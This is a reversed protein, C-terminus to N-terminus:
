GQEMAQLAMIPEVGVAVEAAILGDPNILYAIPTGFRGYMRSIEWQKQLVIPVKLGYEMAKRRNDAADGRSVMLIEGGSLRGGHQVVRHALEGCAGCHIDSFILLIKRGRFQKLCVEGGNIEPLCFDPAPTGPALGNREIKSEREGLSHIITAMAPHVVRPAAALTVLADSGLALGSAIRGRADILYGVPTGSARYAAAVTHGPQLLVPCRIGRATFWARNKAADGTTIVVPVPSGGEGRVPLAAVDGAMRACFGCAPDFFILLIRKGKFSELAVANGQLDPLQFGPAATGVPLASRADPERNDAGGATALRQEV